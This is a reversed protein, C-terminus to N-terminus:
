GKAILKVVSTMNKQLHSGTRGSRPLSGQIAHKGLPSDTKDGERQVSSSLIKELAHYPRSFLAFDVPIEMRQHPVSQACSVDAPHYPHRGFTCNAAWRV